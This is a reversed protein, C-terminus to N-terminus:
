DDRQDELQMERRMEAYDELAALEYDGAIEQAQQHDVETGCDPCEAPDVDGGEEPHCDEPRGHLKAPIIPSVSIEFEEGCDHCQYNM